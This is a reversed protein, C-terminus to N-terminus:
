LLYWFYILCLVWPKPPFATIPTLLSLFCMPRSCRAAGPFCLPTKETGLTAVSEPPGCYPDHYCTLHCSPPPPQWFNLSFNWVLFMGKVCMKEEPSIGCFSLWYCGSLHHCIHWITTTVWMKIDRPLQLTWAAIFTVITCHPLAVRLGLSFKQVLTCHKFFLHMPLLSASHRSSISAPASLLAPSKM